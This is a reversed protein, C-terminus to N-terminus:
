EQSERSSDSGLRRGLRMIDVIKKMSETKRFRRSAHTIDAQGDPVRVTVVAPRACMVVRLRIDPIDYELLDADHMQMMEAYEVFSRLAATNLCFSQLM